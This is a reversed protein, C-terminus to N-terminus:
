FLLSSPIPCCSPLIVKATQITHVEGGFAANTVWQYGMAHNQSKKKERDKGLPRIILSQLCQFLDTEKSGGGGKKAGQM